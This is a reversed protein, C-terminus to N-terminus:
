GLCYDLGDEEGQFAIQEGQHSHGFHCLSIFGCVPLYTSM